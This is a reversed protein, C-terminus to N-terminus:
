SMAALFEKAVENREEKTEFVIEFKMSNGKLYYGIGPKGQVEQMCLRAIESKLVAAQGCMIVKEEM